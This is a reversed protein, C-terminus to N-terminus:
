YGRAPDVQNRLAEGAGYRALNDCFIETALAYLDAVRGSIHPTIVINDLSWLPHDAPLPERVAVDLAAGAITGDRLAAALADEDVVEGRSVNILVASPKMSALADADILGRTEATLASSLVVYDSDALMRHVESPAYAADLLPDGGGEGFSRRTAVVRCGFARARKAVEAGIHGFGVIGVTKGVLTEVPQREWGHAQQNRFLRPWGKAFMLMCGLVWESISVANFGATTTFTLGSGLAAPTLADAGASGLQVWRLRPASAPLGAVVENWQASWNGFAIEADALAAAFRGPEGMEARTLVTVDLDPSAARIREAGDAALDVGAVLVRVTMAGETTVGEVPAFM